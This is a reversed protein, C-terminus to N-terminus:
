SVYKTNGLNIQRRVQLTRRKIKERKDLIQKGRGEYVDVPKLNNLSEHYRRHNYYEIFRSIEHELAWPLFYHQLKMVNKMSRHFHEIKGQTMPHYPAGRTHRLGHKELYEKLEAAIYCPGNDSLLRPRHKVAVGTVGTKEIALDLVEKVDSAAMTTFPKWAIIYRSYDDLVSCLYYWGWCIVKFYTFDTQWLEHVRRPPNTFSDGASIVTDVPISIGVRDYAGALM